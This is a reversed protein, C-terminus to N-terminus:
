RSLTTIFQPYASSTNPSVVLGTAASPINFSSLDTETNLTITGLTYFSGTWSTTVYGITIAASPTCTVKIKRFMNVTNIDIIIKKSQGSAGGLSYVSLEDTGCFLEGDGEDSRPPKKMAKNLALLKM